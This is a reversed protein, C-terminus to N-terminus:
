GAQPSSFEGSNRSYRGLQQTTGLWGWGAALALAGVGMAVGAVAVLVTRLNTIAETFNTREASRQPMGRCYVSTGVDVRIHLQCGELTPRDLLAPSGDSRPGECVPRRLCSCDPCLVALMNRPGAPAAATLGTGTVPRDLWPAPPMTPNMGPLPRGCGTAAVSIRSDMRFRRRLMSVTCGLTADPSTSGVSARSRM